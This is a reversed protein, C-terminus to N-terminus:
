GAAEALVAAVRKKLEPRLPHSEDTAQLIRAAEQRFALLEHDLMTAVRDVVEPSKLLLLARYARYGDESYKRVLKSSREGKPKAIQEAIVTQSALWQEAWEAATKGVYAPEPYWHAPPWQEGLYDIGQWNYAEQRQRDSVDMPEFEFNTWMRSRALEVIKFTCLVRSCPWNRMGFLDSGDWTDAMPMFQGPPPYIRPETAFCVPCYSTVRIGASELDVDIGGKVFLCYYQPSPIVRLPKPRIERIIVPEADYGSAGVANLDDAVRQSVMLMPEFGSGMADPWERGAEIDAHVPGRSHSIDRGCGSCPSTVHRAIADSWAYQKQWTTRDSIRFFQPPM